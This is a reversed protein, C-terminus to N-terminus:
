DKILTPIYKKQVTDLSKDIYESLIDQKPFSDLRINHHHNINLFLGDRRGTRPEIEIGLTENSNVGFRLSLKNCIQYESGTKIKKNIFHEWLWNESSDELNLCQYEYNIGFVSFSKVIDLDRFKKDFEDIYRYLDEKNNAKFVIRDLSLVIAPVPKNKLSIIYGEPGLGYLTDIPSGFLEKCFSDDLPPMFKLPKEFVIVVGISILELEMKKLNIEFYSQLIIVFSANQLIKM